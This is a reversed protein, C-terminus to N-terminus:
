IVEDANRDRVKDFAHRKKELKETTASLHQHALNNVITNTTSILFAESQRQNSRKHTNIEIDNLWMKWM